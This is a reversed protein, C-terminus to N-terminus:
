RPPSQEIIVKDGALKKPVYRVPVSRVPTGDKASELVLEGDVSFQQDEEDARLRTWGLLKGKEDYRYQDSWNRANDLFPDVYNDINYDISLLRGNEDFVRKQNDPFYVSFIAPASWHEGNGVFLGVDVRNSELPSGPHVPRRHHWPVTIEVVSGKEELKEIKIRSEDGRLIVWRYILPKDASDRSAQADLTLSYTPATTKYVRAVACPTDFLRQHPRFDFYDRGQVPLDEQVVKFQAFPPLVDEEM